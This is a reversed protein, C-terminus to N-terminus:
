IMIMMNHLWNDGRRGAGGEGGDTWGDEGAKGRELMELM